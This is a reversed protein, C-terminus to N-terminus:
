IDVVVSSSSWSSPTVILQRRRGLRRSALPPTINRAGHHHHRRHSPAGNISLTATTSVLSSWQYIPRPHFRIYEASHRGSHRQAAKHRKTGGQAAKDCTATLADYWIEM